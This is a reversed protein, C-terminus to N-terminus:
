VGGAEERWRSTPTVTPWPTLTSSGSGRCRWLNVSRTLCCGKIFSPFLFTVEMVETILMRSAMTLRTRPSFHSTIMIRMGAESFSLQHPYACLLEDVMLVSPKRHYNATPCVVANLDVAKKLRYAWSTNKQKAFNFLFPPSALTAGKKLLVATADCGDDLESNNAAGNRLTSSKKKRRELFRVIHSNLRFCVDCWIWEM